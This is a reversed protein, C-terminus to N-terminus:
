PRRYKHGFRELFDVIRAYVARADPQANTIVSIRDPGYQIFIEQSSFGVSSVHELLYTKGAVSISSKDFEVRVTAPHVAWRYLFVIAVVCGLFILLAQYGIKDFDSRTDGIGLYAWMAAYLGGGILPFLAAVAIILRRDTPKPKMLYVLRQGNDLVEFNASGDASKPLVISM